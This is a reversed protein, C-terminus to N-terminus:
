EGSFETQSTDDKRFTNAKNFKINERYIVFKDGPHIPSNPNLYNWIILSQIPIGFHKAISTLNDGKKVIYIIKKQDKLYKKVIRKYRIQFNLGAGKPVLIDHNGEALFHGRIEPNLNKIVRFSTKVAQAVIRIPIEQPCDVKIRDFAPPPYYDDDNLKFGFKEPDSFILKISLIRFIFRQTELPLYLHYYDNTEQEMIEAILWEQGMNYGAIALTWSGFRNYLDKFHSIAAQTSAFLNRREDIRGNINLEYNRGTDAMFQWFGMAGKSSSVHPRLASEAIAVYKLDDPIMSKKLMVEITPLYRQSRKLWLIVQPRYWLSLLFEKELRERVEQIELPVAEGCLELPGITKLSSVLSILDNHEFSAGYVEATLLFGVFLVSLKMWRM